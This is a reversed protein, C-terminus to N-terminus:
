TRFMVPDLVSSCCASVTVFGLPPSAQAASSTMATKPPIAHSTSYWGFSRGAKDTVSLESRGVPLLAVDVADSRGAVLSDGKMLVRPMFNTGTAM